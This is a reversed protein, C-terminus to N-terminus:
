QHRWEIGRSIRCRNSDENMKRTCRTSYSDACVSKFFLQQHPPASTIRGTRIRHARVPLNSRTHAGCFRNRVPAHAGTRACRHPVPKATRAAFCSEPACAGTGCRASYSGCRRVVKKEGSVIKSNRSRNKCIGVWGSASSLHILVRISAFNWSSDFPPMLLTTDRVTREHYNHFGQIAM